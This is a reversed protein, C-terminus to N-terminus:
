EAEDAFRKITSVVREIEDSSLNTSCPVNVVRERYRRAKVVGHEVSGLYPKQDCIIGWIPRSQINHESFFSILKDRSFPGDDECLLSYFWKNSRTGKRFSLLQLGAVSELSHKYLEYNQEKRSIFDDLQELQAIGLAAQLNTMRYNYGIADHEFYAADSKAQTSLHKAKNLVDQNASVVMGGGGTTIIKNGNFSFVGIDGITGAFQGSYEGSVYRTGLAETADEILVINYKHCIRAISEMDAMNGFVHVVILAKIKLKTEGHVLVGEEFSCEDDCFTALKQPDICLSDDCDMFIPEAGAYKVPNVAAIFTLAPVIVADGVGVSSTLLALHIGSTGSQCSVAGPANVYNALEEEFREVYPGATSVWETNIANTVYELEKGRLSPVSLPIYADKPM